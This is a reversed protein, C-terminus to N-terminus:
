YEITGKGGIREIAVNVDPRIGDVKFTGKINEFEGTGESFKGTGTLRLTRTTRKGQFTETGRITGNDFRLIFTNTLKPQKPPKAPHRVIEATVNGNGFPQGSVVGAMSIRVPRKLPPSIANQSDKPTIAAIELTMDLRHKEIGGGGSALVVAVIIIAALAAAAILLPLKGGGRGRGGDEAAPPSPHPPVEPPAGEEVRRPATVDPAPGQAVRRPATVDPSPAEPVRRPATVDPAAVDPREQPLARPATVDPSPAEPVRRPATVDPPQGVIGRAATVDPTAPTQHPRTLEPLTLEVDITTLGVRITGSATMQEVGDIREGNVFTGNTSGLDEVEMGRETPRVAAHRRSMEPDSITVDADERGIVLEQEVDTTQGANSGSSVKLTRM